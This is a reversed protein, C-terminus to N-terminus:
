KLNSDRGYIEQYQRIKEAARVPQQTRQLLKGMAVIHSRFTNTPNIDAHSITSTLPTPNESSNSLIPKPRRPRGFIPFYAFCFLLGWLLFHPVIYRLPPESIWAWANNSNADKDSVSIGGPGSELFVVKSQFSCEDILAGALKRHEHNVLGYNLLFSGNGVIIIKNENNQYANAQSDEAEGISYVFDIGDTTVLPQVENWSEDLLKQPPGLVTAFEINTLKDNVNEAWPGTVQNAKRRTFPQHEFWRCSKTERDVLYESQRQDQRLKTEALQRLVEERNKVGPSQIAHQLYDLEADFDRGVYILTRQVGNRLWDELAETVEVGPYDTEDPFWVITDYKELKPSIKRFRKVDCGRDRFMDLLVGTGNVSTGGHDGAVKGYETVLKESRGCGAALLLGLLLCVLWGSRRVQQFKNRPRNNSEPISHSRFRSNDCLRIMSEGVRKPERVIPVWGSKAM